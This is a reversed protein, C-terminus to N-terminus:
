FLAHAAIMIVAMVLIYSSEVAIAYRSKQAWLGNAKITVSLTLAILIALSLSNTTATVGIVWALLFTSVAQAFLAHAPSNADKATLGVGKMWKKGFMKPSYWFSGLAFAAIAGVIVATWNVDVLIQEM